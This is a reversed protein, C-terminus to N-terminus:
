DDVAGDEMVSLEKLSQAYDSNSVNTDLLDDMMSLLCSARIRLVSLDRNSVLVGIMLAGCEKLDQMDLQRLITKAKLASVLQIEDESGLGGTGEITLCEIRSEKSSLCAALHALPEM